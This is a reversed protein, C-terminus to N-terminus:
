RFVYRGIYPFKGSDYISVLEKELMRYFVELFGDSWGKPKSLSSSYGWSQGKFFTHYLGYKDRVYFHPNGGLADFDYKVTSSKGKYCVTFEGKIREM